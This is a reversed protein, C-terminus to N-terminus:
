ARSEWASESMYVAGRWEKNGGDGLREEVLFSTPACGKRGQKVYSTKM